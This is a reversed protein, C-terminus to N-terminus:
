NRSEWGLSSIGKGVLSLHVSGAVLTPAPNEPFSKKLKAFKAFLNYAM